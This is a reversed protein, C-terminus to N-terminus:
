SIGLIDIPNRHIIGEILEGSVRPLATGELIRNVGRIGDMSQQTTTAPYDSGFFVKEQAGYEELLRMTNYFQWPRYYLASIDAYLNPQKRIATIAESEWPHGLHALIIKLDPYLCSVEDMLAPRAWELPVGSSFTAAMHTIIPLDNRQCYDYMRKYREDLPHVGQYIPGLKIMKANLKTHYYTLQEMFDEDLPDVSAAFIYRPSTRAFGAIRENDSLWGTAQARIGFVFVVDAAATDREFDEKTYIWKNVTFCRNIDAKLHDSMESGYEILHTHIDVIM